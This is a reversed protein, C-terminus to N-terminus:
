SSGTPKPLEIWFRSGRGLASELGVSGGMREAAKKVISLGIGTGEYDTQPNIRGFMQFIRAHHAPDIGIGNDEIWIRVHAEQLETRIVVEPSRDKPVFKVANELLNSMCQTLYAQHGEVKHLPRQIVVHAETRRMTQSEKIVDQIVEDLDIPETKVESKSVRSYTLVDQILTDMRVAAKSIRLLYDEGEAGLKGSFDELLAQAYGQMARLPSRLDHSISYSFAELEQVAGRLRENLEQITRIQEEQQRNNLALREAQREILKRQQALKVFVRVKAKLVSPIVPLFLYDAAGIDYGKLRDIDSTNYGTIFLIPTHEYRPRQRIMMAIEFGNIDPMNVDLLVVAFDQKLLCELAERGSTATVITQEPDALVTAHALLKSPQDDVLLISVKDQDVTPVPSPANNGNRCPELAPSADTLAPLSQM